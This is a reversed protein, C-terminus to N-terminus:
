CKEVHIPFRLTFLIPHDVEIVELFWNSMICPLRQLDPQCAGERGWKGEVNEEEKRIFIQEM